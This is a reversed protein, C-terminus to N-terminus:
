NRDDKKDESGCSEGVLYFETDNVAIEFVLEDAEVHDVCYELIVELDDDVTNLIEKLEKVTM